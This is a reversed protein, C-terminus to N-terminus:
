EIFGYEDLMAKKVAETPEGYGKKLVTGYDAIKINGGKEIKAFDPANDPKSLIYYYCDLGNETKGQILFIDQKSNKSVKNVFSM